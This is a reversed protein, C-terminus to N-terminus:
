PAGTLIPPPAPALNLLADLRARYFPQFWALLVFPLLVLFSGGGLVLVVAGLQVLPPSRGAVLAMVFFPLVMLLVGGLTIVALWGVLRGATGRKWSVVVALGLALAASWGIMSMMIGFPLNDGLGNAAFGFASSLLGLALLLSFFTGTRSRSTLLPMLLWVVGMALALSRFAIVLFDRPEAPIFGAAVDLAQLLGVVLLLPVWIWWAAPRRNPASVLLVGLVLIWPGLAGLAILPSWYVSVRPGTGEGL